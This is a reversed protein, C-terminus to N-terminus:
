ATISNMSALAINRQASPTRVILLHDVFDFDIEFCQGGPHAIPSTTLGRATVYLGVHWSHNLWPTLTLRVKGVVQTWMHLTACTEQWEAFPLAPWFQDREIPM